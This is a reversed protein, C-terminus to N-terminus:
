FHQHHRPSFVYLNATMRGRSTPLLLCLKVKLLLWIVSNDLVRLIKSEDDCQVSLLCGSFWSVAVMCKIEIM